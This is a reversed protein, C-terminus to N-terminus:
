DDKGLEQTIRDVAPIDAPAWELGILLEPALWRLESHETKNPEGNVLACYFTTLTIIAFDYEYTTSEVQDGVKIICNLEEAIERALAEKPSEDAEIKGGPFEWLGPLLGDPGRRACLVNGDKLIVAGVVDIIKNM